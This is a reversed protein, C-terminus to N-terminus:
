VIEGMDVKNKSIDETAHHQAAGVLLELRKVSAEIGELRRLVARDHILNDNPQGALPSYAMQWSNLGAIGQRWAWAQSNPGGSQSPPPPPTDYMHSEDSGGGKVGDEGGLHKRINSTAMLVVKKFLRANAMGQIRVDDGPTPRNQGPLGEIRISSVGYHSQLCGQEIVVDTVLHLLVHKERRSVGFCPLFVPRTVKYVIANTTVYLKRTRIDQRVVYRRIPVYLLMLLGVGYVLILLLSILIWQVTDYNVYSNEMEAFSARYLVRGLDGADEDDAQSVPDALLQAELYDGEPIEDLTAM